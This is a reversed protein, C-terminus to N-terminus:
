GGPARDVVLRVAATTLDPDHLQVYHDSGTALLHPTQPALAVLSRQAEPWAVELHTLLQKPMSPPAAFPETKSLVAIPVHPLPGARDIATVAGDIDVQEFAPDADYPTGPHRLGSVYDAWDTGLGRKLAPALADVLVLGRTRDPHRKAYLLTIMGGYSHGVLVYPEPVRGATLLRDLDRVADPLERTGTVPSSRTTLTPPDTYRLTGPRDYLCVRTFAAVGPFVAPAKPVPPATDTMTWGDSAEHLGSVLVVTPTGTGRCRLYVTRGGGIDVHRVTDGGDASPAPARAPTPVPPRATAPPLGAWLTLAATLAALVAARPARRM